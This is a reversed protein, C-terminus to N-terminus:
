QESTTNNGGGANGGSQGGMGRVTNLHAEIMPAGKTAHAKLAANDGAEAYTRAFALSEEHSAIQQNRYVEDFGGAPAQRLNDIMGQRREDLATPVTVGQATGAAKKLDASMKTHDDIIKQAYKKLDASQAKELALKSSEIEYMDGIAAGTVFGETTRGLTAASAAGVAGSAADQAANSVPNSGVGSQASANEVPGDQVVENKEGCAAVALMAAFAGSLLLTRKM